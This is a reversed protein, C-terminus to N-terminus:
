EAAELGIGDSVPPGHVDRESSDGPHFHRLGGAGALFLQRLKASLLRSAPPFPFSYVARLLAARRLRVTLMNTTVSMFRVRADNANIAFSAVGVVALTASRSTRSSRHPVRAAHFSLSHAGHSSSRRSALSVGCQGTTFASSTWLCSVYKRNLSCCSLFLNVTGLAVGACLTWM